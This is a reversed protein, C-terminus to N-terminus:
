RVRGDYERRMWGARAEIKKLVGKGKAGTRTWRELEIDYSCPSAWQRESAEWEVVFRGDPAIWEYRRFGKDPLPEGAPDTLIRAGLLPFDPCSEGWMEELPVRAVEVGAKANIREADQLLRILYDNRLVAHEARGPIQCRKYAARAKAEDEVEVQLAGQVAAAYNRKPSLYYFNERGGTRPAGGEPRVSVDRVDVLGARVLRRLTRRELTGVKVARGADRRVVEQTGVEDITM